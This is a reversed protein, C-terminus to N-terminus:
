VNTVGTKFLWEKTMPNYRPYPPKVRQDEAIWRQAGSDLLALGRKLHIEYSKKPLPGGYSELYSANPTTEWTNDCYHFWHTIGCTKCSRIVGEWKYKWDHSMPECYTTM